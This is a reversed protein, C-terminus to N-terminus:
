NNCICWAGVCELFFMRGLLCILEKSLSLSLSLPCLLILKHTSWSGYISNEKRISLYFSKNIHFFPCGLVCSTYLPDVFWTCFNCLDLFSSFSQNQLPSLWDVLTRFFFLKLDSISKENDEFCRSNRERWLCWMLCHPVITWIHGNWHHGFQGQWCALLRVVSKPM